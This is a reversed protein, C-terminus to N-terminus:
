LLCIKSRQIESLVQSDRDEELHGEFSCRQFFKVEDHSMQRQLKKNRDMEAM